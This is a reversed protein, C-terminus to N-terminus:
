ARGHPFFKCSLVTIDDPYDESGKFQEVQRML